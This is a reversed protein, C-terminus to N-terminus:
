SASSVTLPDRLRDAVVLLALFLPPIVASWEEGNRGVAVLYLLWPIPGAIAALAIVGLLRRAPRALALAELIVAATVLLHLQDYTWGHPAVFISVPIAAAVLLAAGPRRLRWWLVLVAVAAIAGVLAALPLPVVRGITWVTANSGGSGQLAVVSRLWGGVWGPRLVLSGVVFTGAVAAAGLVLRRWRRRGAAAVLAPVVLGFPHPKVALTGLLAGAAAPRDLLALAGCTAGFLFGTVNGNGALLWLPQFGAAMGFLLAADRQPATRLIARALLALGAAVAAVQAVLWVAAALSFPLLALPVFAALTWLPYATTWAPGEAPQPVVTLARSESRRHFDQWWQLDYPDAGELLAHGGAWYQFFDGDRYDRAPWGALALALTLTLAGAAVVLIVARSM